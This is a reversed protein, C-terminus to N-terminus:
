PSAPDEVARGASRTPGIDCAVKHVVKTDDTVIEVGANAATAAM